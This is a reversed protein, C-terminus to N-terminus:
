KAHMPCGLDAEGPAETAEPMDVIHQRYAEHCGTCAHLTTDLAALVGVRDRRGAAEGIADASRHFHEGTEAFGVAGAGMHKCM